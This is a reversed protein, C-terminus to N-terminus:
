STKTIYSLVQLIEQHVNTDNIVIEDNQSCACLVGIVLLTLYKKM